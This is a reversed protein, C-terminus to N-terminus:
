HVASRSHPCLPFMLYAPAFSRRCEEAKSSLFVSSSNFPCSPPTCLPHSMQPNKDSVHFLMQAPPCRVSLPNVTNEMYKCPMYSCKILSDCAWPFHLLRTTAKCLLGIVCVRLCVCRARSNLAVAQLTMSMASEQFDLRCGLSNRVFLPLGHSDNRQQVSPYIPLTHSPIAPHVYFVYM